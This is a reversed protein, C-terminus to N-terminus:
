GYRQQIENRKVYVYREKKRRNTLINLLGCLLVKCYLTVKIIIYYVKPAATDINLSNINAFIEANCYIM